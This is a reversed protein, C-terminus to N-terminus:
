CRTSRDFITGTSVTVSQIEGTKRSVDQKMVSCEQSVPSSQCISTRVYLRVSLNLCPRLSNLHSLHTRAQWSIPDRVPLHFYGLSAEMGAERDGVDLIVFCAGGHREARCM